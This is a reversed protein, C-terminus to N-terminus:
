RSPIPAPLMNPTGNAPAPLRPPLQTPSPAAPQKPAPQEVPGATGQEREIETRLEAWREEALRAFRTEPYRNKVLQYYFYASGPHGTRRYFEAMKFDKEAQQLDISKRQNDLWERTGSDRTLDPYANFATQVLKRAEAAKRGDYDSGGTSMHKCFIALKLSQAARKSEPHRAHIQSFYHDAERYNENYMKIVGCMFLAEDALPGNIDHLRVQELKEIARGERDLFPKSKEVSLFRPMVFVRKGDRREKDERMEQRTDDLWYNAIDFMHQVCQERYSSNPFKSLLSAYLDAARPYYGMLRLSEAQYYMAEQVAAGAHKENDAVRAFISEAKDYEEKRFHERAAAMYAALDDNLTVAPKEEVLGDGRLVFTETNPDTVPTEFPNIQRWSLKNSDCGTTGSVFLALLLPALWAGRTRQTNGM